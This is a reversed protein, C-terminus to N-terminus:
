VTLRIPSASLWALKSAAAVLRAVDGLGQLGKAQGITMLTTMEEEGRTVPKDGAELRHDLHGGVGLRLAGALPQEVDLCLAAAARELGAEDGGSHGGPAAFPAGLVPTMVALRKGNHKMEYLPLDPMVISRERGIENFIGKDSLREIVNGYFPIICREPAGIKRIIKSPEIIAIREPDYEIIPFERSKM